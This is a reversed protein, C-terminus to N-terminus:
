RKGRRRAFAVIGALGMLAFSSPEPVATNLTIDDMSFSGHGLTGSTGSTIIVKSMAVGQFPATTTLLEFKPDFNLAVGVGKYNANPLGESASNFTDTGLSLENLGFYQVTVVPPFTGRNAYWFSKFSLNAANNLDITVQNSPTGSRVISLGIQTGSIPAPEDGFGTGGPGKDITLETNVDTSWSTVVGAPVAGIITVGDTGPFGESTEFSIVVAQASNSALALMGIAVLLRAPRLLSHGWRRLQVTQTCKDGLLTKM